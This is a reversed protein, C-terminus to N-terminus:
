LLLYLSHQIFEKSSIELIEDINNSIFIFLRNQIFSFGSVSLCNKQTNISTFYFDLDSCFSFLLRLNYTTWIYSASYCTINVVYFVINKFCIVNYILSIFLKALFDCVKHYLLKRNKNQCVMLGIISVLGSINSTKEKLRPM